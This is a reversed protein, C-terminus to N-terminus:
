YKWRIWTYHISSVVRVGPLHASEEFFYEAAYSNVGDNKKQIEDMISFKGVAHSKQCQCKDM